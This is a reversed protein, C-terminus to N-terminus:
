IVTGGCPCYIIYDGHAQGFIQRLSQVGGGFFSTGHQGLGREVQSVGRQHDGRNLFTQHQGSKCYGIMKRPQALEGPTVRIALRIEGIKTEDPEALQIRRQGDDCRIHAVKPNVAPSAALPDREQVRGLHLCAPSRGPRSSLSVMCTARVELNRANCGRGGSLMARSVALHRQSLPRFQRYVPLTAFTTSGRFRDPERTIM